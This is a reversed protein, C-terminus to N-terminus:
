KQHIVSILEHKKMKSVDETIGIQSAINKLQNINMKKLQEQTPRNKQMEALHQLEPQEIPAPETATLNLVTEFDTLIVSQPTEGLDLVNDPANQEEISVFMNEPLETKNTLEPELELELEPKLEPEPQTTDNLEIEEVLSMDSDVSSYTESGTESDSDSIDSDDDMDSVILRNENSALIDFTIVEKAPLPVPEYLKNQNLVAVNIEPTTKSKLELNVPEPEPKPTNELGFMGRLIKIEKVVATLLGYMSENKKEAVTIRNKFHYVLFGVLIFVVALSIFFFREIFAFASM